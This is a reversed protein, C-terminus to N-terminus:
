FVLSCWTIIPMIVTEVFCLYSVWCAIWICSLHKFVKLYKIIWHRIRESMLKCSNQLKFMWSVSKHWVWHCLSRPFDQCEKKLDLSQLHHYFKRLAGQAESMVGEAWAGGPVVNWQLNDTRAPSIPLDLNLKLFHTNKMQKIIHFPALYMGFVM